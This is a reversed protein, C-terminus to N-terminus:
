FKLRINLSFFAAPGDSSVSDVRRNDDDYVRFQQWVIAGADGGLRLWKRPRWELGLGVPARRHQFSGEGVGPGRDELRYRDSNLSGFAFARLADSMKAELRLGTGRTELKWTDNIKWEGQLYPVVRVGSNDLRSRVGVGLALSLRDFFERAVAVTGGGRLGDGFDAGWEFRSTAFGAALLAWADNLLYRGGLRFESEVFDDFTSGSPAGNSFGGDGDFDFGVYRGGATIQLAFRKSVPLPVRTQVGSRVWTVDSDGVDGGVSARSDLYVLPKVKKVQQFVTTFDLGSGLVDEQEEQAVAAGPVVAVGIGFLVGLLVGRAYDVGEETTRVTSGAALTDPHGKFPLDSTRHPSRPRRRPPVAPTRFQLAALGADPTGELGLWIRNCAQDVCRVISPRSRTSSVARAGVVRFEREVVFELEGREFEGESLMEQVRMAHDVLVPLRDRGSDIAESLIEALSNGM